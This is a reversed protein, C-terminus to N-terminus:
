RPSRLRHSHKRANTHASEARGKRPKPRMQRYELPTMALVRRFVRCFYQLSRFGSLAAVRTSDLDTSFLLHRARELRLARVYEEFPMRERQIFLKSFHSPAFGAVRAVRPLRLPETYHEQIYDLAIRLRRDRRAPVPRRVAESLDLVATHYASSLERITRAGAAARNLANRLADFSRAELAGNKLLPEAMKEFGVELHAKAPEVRQGCQAVVKALYHDFKASLDEPREEVVRGLEQRLERLSLVLPSAHAKAFVIKEGSGLASEAAALASQYSRSLPVSGPAAAAGFHLSLGFDRRAVREVREALDLMKQRKRQVSGSAGSLFVAGHDGVRGALADGTRRALEVCGRQFADWRVAQDVPDATLSLNVSLGVLVHDAILTLGRRRLDASRHLSFWSKSSREDIISQVVEWIQDVFRVEELEARLQNALNTLEGAHGNGALLKAFCDLLQEMSAVRDGELVLTGLAASLYSAFEPDAPHGHRGTLRRWGELIRATTPRELVFPGVVLVAVVVKGVLIPVFFDSWGGYEGRVIRRERMVKSCCRYNYNGRGEVGHELEFSHISPATHIPLWDQGHEWLTASVRLATFAYAVVPALL